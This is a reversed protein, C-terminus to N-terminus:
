NNAEKNQLLPNVQIFFRKPKWWNKYKDKGQIKKSFNLM